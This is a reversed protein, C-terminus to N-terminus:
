ALDAPSIGDVRGRWRAEFARARELEPGIADRAAEASGFLPSLDWRVGSAQVTSV